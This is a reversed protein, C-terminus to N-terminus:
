DRIIFTGTHIANGDQSLIYVFTGSELTSGLDDVGNWQVHYQGPELMIGKSITKRVKGTLDLVLLDYTAAKYIDIPFVMNGTSPNPFPENRLYEDNWFM